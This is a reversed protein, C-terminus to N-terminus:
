SEVIRPPCIFSITTEVRSGPDRSDRDLYCSAAEPDNKSEYLWIEAFSEVFSSAQFSSTNCCTCNCTKTGLPLM